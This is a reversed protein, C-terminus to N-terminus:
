KVNFKGDGTAIVSGCSVPDGVLAISKGAVKFQTRSGIAVGGHPPNNPKDHMAFPSGDVLVPVGAVKFQSVGSVAPRPSFGDHGSCVSNETAIAAM